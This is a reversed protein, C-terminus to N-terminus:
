FMCHSQHILDVSVAPAMEQWCLTGKVMIVIERKGSFFFSQAKFRKPTATGQSSSEATFHSHWLHIDCFCELCSSEIFNILATVRM